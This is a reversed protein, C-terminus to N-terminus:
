ICNLKPKPFMVIKVIPQSAMPFGISSGETQFTMPARLGRNYEQTTDELIVTTIESAKQIELDVCGVELRAVEQAFIATM